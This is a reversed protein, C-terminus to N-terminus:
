GAPLTRAVAGMMAEATLAYGLRWAQEVPPTWRDGLVAALAALLADGAVPFHAARVGYGRHRRGLPEVRRLFAEHRRISFVIQELEATFLRRQVGLDDGFLSELSPDAAFLRRYFGDALEDLSGFVMSWSQEVLAIQEPTM